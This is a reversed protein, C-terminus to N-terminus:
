TLSAGFGEDEEDDEDDMDYDPVRHQSWVDSYETPGDREREVSARHRRIARVIVMSGILITLVVFFMFLLLTPLASIPQERAAREADGATSPMVVNPNTRAIVEAKFLDSDRVLWMGWASIIMVVGVAGFTLGVRVRYQETGPQGLM